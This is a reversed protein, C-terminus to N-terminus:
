VFSGWDRGDGGVDVVIVLRVCIGSGFLSGFCCLCYMRWEIIWGWWILCFFFGCFWFILSFVGVVRGLGVWGVFM